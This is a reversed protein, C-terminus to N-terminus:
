GMGPGDGGAPTDDRPPRSTRGQHRLEALKDRRAHASAGAPLELATRRRLRIETRVVPVAIALVVIAVFVWVITM